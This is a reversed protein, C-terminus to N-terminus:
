AAGGAVPKWQPIAVEGNVDEFLVELPMDITLAEPTQEVERLNTMMKTGEDTLVVAIVYPAEDQFGPAPRHNIIYSHLTGRGSARFWEVNRSGCAPCFPRPPFYAGADCETCRQFRLEGAKTGEWFPATEPTPQPIAKKSYDALLGPRGKSDPDWM